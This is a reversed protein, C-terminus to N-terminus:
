VARSVADDSCTPWNYCADLKMPELVEHRVWKDFRAGTATHTISGIGPFNFNTYAFYASSPGHASDWVAPDALAQQLSGGLPVVYADDGDRLSSTHSLLQRLSIPQNPFNPNRFNWGLYTAVDRDLDLKGQEVLKMVGIAVILKSVSAIRVPDDPTVLRGTWPGARAEAWRGRQGKRDFAVAGQAPGTAAPPPPSAFARFSTMALLSLSAAIWIKM